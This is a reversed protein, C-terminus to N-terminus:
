DLLENRESAISIFECGVTTRNDHHVSNPEARCYDGAKMRVGSITLDGSLVYNEEIAVHRHRPFSAGPAMRVLSTVMGTDPDRHLVKWEIGDFPAADWVMRNSLTFRVGGLDITPSRPTQAQEAVKAIVRERLQASPTQPDCSYALEVAVHSFSDVEARCNECGQELHVEFEQLEEGRLAGVAYLPALETMQSSCNIGKM